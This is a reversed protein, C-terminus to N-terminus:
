GNIECTYTQLWDGAVGPVAKGKLLISIPKELNTGFIEYTNCGPCRYMTKEIVIDVLPPASKMCDVVQPNTMVEFMEAAEDHMKQGAHMNLSFLSLVLLLTMKM